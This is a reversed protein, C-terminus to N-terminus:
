KWACRPRSVRFGPCWSTARAQARLSPGAIVISDGEETVRLAPQAPAGAGKAGNAYGNELPPVPAPAASAPWGRPLELQQEAVAFGQHLSPLADAFRWGQQLLHRRPVM